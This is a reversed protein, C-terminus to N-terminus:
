LYFPNDMERKSALFFMNKYEEINVELLSTDYMKAM